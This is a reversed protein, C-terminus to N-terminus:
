MNSLNEEDSKSVESSYYVSMDKIPQLEQNENKRGIMHKERIRNDQHTTPQQKFLYLKHQNKHRIHIIDYVINKAVLFIEPDLANMMTLIITNIILKEKVAIRLDDSLDEIFFYKSKITPSSSVALLGNQDSKDRVPSSIRSLQDQSRSNDEKDQSEKEKMKNNNYPKNQLLG